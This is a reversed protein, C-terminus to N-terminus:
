GQRAMAWQRAEVGLSSFFFIDMFSQQINYELTFRGGGLTAVSLAGVSSQLDTEIRPVCGLRPVRVRIHARAISARLWGYVGPSYTNYFHTGIISLM